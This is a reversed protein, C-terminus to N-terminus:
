SDKPMYEFMTYHEDTMGLNTYTEIARQNSQDVYLRIGSYCDDHHVIEKIHEYLATYLGQRRFEPKVYVSQIWIVWANRWDSWEFTTMTCACVENDKEVVYYKGKRSDELLAEIGARIQAEPLHYDETEIAMAQQFGVLADIDNKQAERIKM